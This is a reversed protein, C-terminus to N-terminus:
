APRELATAGRQLQFRVATLVMSQLASLHLLLSLSSLAVALSSLTPPHSDRDTLYARDNAYSAVLGAISFHQETCCPLAAPPPDARRQCQLAAQKRRPQQRRRLREKWIRKKRQRKRSSRWSTWSRRQSTSRTGAPACLPAPPASSQPLCSLPLPVAPMFMSFCPLRGARAPQAPLVTCQQGIDMSLPADCPTVLRGLPQQGCPGAPPGASLAARM